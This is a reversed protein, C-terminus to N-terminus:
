RTLLKRPAHGASTLFMAWKKSKEQRKAEKAAAKLRKQEEKAELERRKKEEKRGKEAQSKLSKIEKKLNSQDKSDTIGMAQM